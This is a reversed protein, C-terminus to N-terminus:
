MHVCHEDYCTGEKIGLVWKAWEGGVVRWCGKTQEGDNLARLTPIKFHM